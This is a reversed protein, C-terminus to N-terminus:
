PDLQVVYLLLLAECLDPLSYTTVFSAWFHKDSVYAFFVYHPSKEISLYKDTVFYIFNYCWHLYKEQLIQKNNLPFIISEYEIIVILSLMVGIQHFFLCVFFYFFVIVIKSLCVNCACLHLVIVFLFLIVRKWFYIRM